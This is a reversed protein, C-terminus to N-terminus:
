RKEGLVALWAKALAEVLSAHEHRTFYGLGKGQIIEVEWTDETTRTITHVCDVELARLIEDARYAPYRDGPFHLPEGDAATFLDHSSDGTHPNRWPYWAGSSYPESKEAKEHAESLLISTSLSLYWDHDGAYSM